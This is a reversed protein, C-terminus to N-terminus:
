SEQVSPQGCLDLIKLDGIKEVEYFSNEDERILINIAQNGDMDYLMLRWTEKYDHKLKLQGIRFIFIRGTDKYTTEDNEEVETERVAAVINKSYQLINKQEKPSAESIAKLAGFPLTDNDEWMKDVFDFYREEEVVKCHLSYPMFRNMTNQIGQGMIDFTFGEPIITEEKTEEEKGDDSELTYNITYTQTVPNYDKISNIKATAFDNRWVGEENKSYHVRVVEAGIYKLLEGGEPLWKPDGSNYGYLEKFDKKM